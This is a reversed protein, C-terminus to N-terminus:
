QWRFTGDEHSGPHGAILQCEVPALAGGRVLSVAIDADPYLASCQELAEAYAM